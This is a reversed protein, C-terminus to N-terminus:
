LRVVHESPPQHHSERNSSESEQHRTAATRRLLLPLPSSSRCVCCATPAGFGVQSHGLVQNSSSGTALNCMNLYQHPSLLAESFGSCEEAGSSVVRWGLRVGHYKSRDSFWRDECRGDVCYLGFHRAGESPQFNSNIASEPKEREREREERERQRGRERDGERERGERERQRGRGGKRERM